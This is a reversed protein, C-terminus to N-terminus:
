SKPLDDEQDKMRKKETDKKELESIKPEREYVRRGVYSNNDGLKRRKGAPEDRMIPARRGRNRQKRMLRIKGELIEHKEMDAKAKKEWQKYQSEGIKTTLRPVASRNFEAKSNLLNHGREQQIVVSEKIQRNFSSHCFSIIKLNFIIAKHDEEEHQDLLHKLLHSSPKLQEIDSLHENSREFVSHATEGVYKYIKNKGLLQKEEKEDKELEKIKQIEREECTQCRTEYVLSRRSCEQKM